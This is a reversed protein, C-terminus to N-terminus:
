RPDLHEQGPRHLLHGVVHARHPGADAGVGGDHDVQEPALVEGARGRERALELRQVHREQLARQRQARDGVVGRQGRRGRHRNGGALVHVRDLLGHAQYAAAHAHDLGVDGAGADGLAQPDGRRHPGLARVHGPM